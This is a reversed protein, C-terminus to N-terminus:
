LSLHGPMRDVEEFVQYWFVVFRGRFVCGVGEIVHKTWTLTTKGAECRYESDDGAMRNVLQPDDRVQGAWLWCGVGADARVCSAYIVTM